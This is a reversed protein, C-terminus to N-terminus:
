IGFKQQKGPVAAPGQKPLGPGDLDLILLIVASLTARAREGLRCIRWRYCCRWLVLQVLTRYETPLAALRKGQDDIMENLSQIFARYCWETTSKM